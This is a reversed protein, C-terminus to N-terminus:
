ELMRDMFDYFLETDGAYVWPLGHISMFSGYAHSIRLINVTSPLQIEYPVLDSLVPSTITSGHEHLVSYNFDDYYIYWNPFGKSNLTHLDM